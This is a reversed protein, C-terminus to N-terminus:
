DVQGGDRDITGHRERWAALCFDVAAFIFCLVLGLFFWLSIFMLVGVMLGVAIPADNEVHKAANYGMFISIGLALLGAITVPLTIDPEMEMPSRRLLNSNMKIANSLSASLNFYSIKLNRKSPFLPELM